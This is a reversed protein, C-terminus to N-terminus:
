SLTGPIAVAILVTSGPLHYSQRPSVLMDLGDARAKALIRSITEIGHPLYPQGVVLDVRREKRNDTNNLVFKDFHDMGYRRWLFECGNKFEGWQDTKMPCSASRSLAHECFDRYGAPKLGYRRVFTKYAIGNAERYQYGSPNLLDNRDEAKLWETMTDSIGHVSVLEDDPLWVPMNWNPYSPMPTMENAIEPM